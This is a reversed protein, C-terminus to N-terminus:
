LVNTLWHFIFRRMEATKLFLRYNVLQLRQGSTILTPKGRSYSIFLSLTILAKTIVFSVTIYCFLIM